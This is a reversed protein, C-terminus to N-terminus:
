GQLNQCFTRRVSTMVKSAHKKV